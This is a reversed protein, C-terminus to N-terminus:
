RTYSGTALLLARDIVGFRKRPLEIAESAARELGEGFREPAFSEAIRYSNEGLQKREQDSMSAMELLRTALEDETAPDFTFGNDNVLEPACGCRNSVIVPLGSAAAENVVLGWQEATSAHVFAKALGYYVPLEDYSKFGPLHVHETLNLTSLQSNLTERVPGDGLLVLDWPAKGGTQSKQRYDEYAAILGPLNKKEIFRASALFYNEPLGYQKRVESGQSRIEDTRERFHANDVVNYGTFIRERPMGLEMLYDVHRQGGVLAASYLDVIRRKVTEKWSIRREDDRSSESMVVMLIGRRVCCNAAVLSGFNNWGNVAVVDPKAQEIASSFARRLEATQPYTETAERFLSVKCYRAPSDAAGWADYGQASWEIGTVSLKEAAANLRAHHYPGIHHFVIAVAPKREM